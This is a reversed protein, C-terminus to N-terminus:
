AHFWAGPLTKLDLPATALTRAMQTSALVLDVACDDHRDSTLQVNMWMQFRLICYLFFIFHPRIM